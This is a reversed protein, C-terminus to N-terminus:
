SSSKPAVDDPTSLNMVIVNEQDIVSVCVDVVARSGSTQGKEEEDEDPQPREGDRGRCAKQKM